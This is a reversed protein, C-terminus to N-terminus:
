GNGLMHAHRPICCVLQFTSPLLVPRFARWLCTLPYLLPAPPALTAYPAFARRAPTGRMTRASPAASCGALPLYTAPTSPRGCTGRCPM